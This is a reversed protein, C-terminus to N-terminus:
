ARTTAATITISLSADSTPKSIEPCTTTKSCSATRSPKIGASSRAKSAIIQLSNAIRHRMEELLLDKQRLLHQLERETASRETIDEIALLLATHANSRSIVTRANLLM